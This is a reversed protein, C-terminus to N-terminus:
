NHKARYWYSYASEFGLKKYMNLAVTNEQIVQLYASHSGKSCVYSLLSTCIETGYGKGRLADDVVVNFLGTYGREVACLGCAIIKGDKVLRGFVTDVKINDLIQKTIAIEKDDSYKSLSFYADSWEDDRSFSFTFNDSVADNFQELSLDATMMYTPSIVTYGRKELLWEVEVDSHDTIKFVAPQENKFYCRECEEIKDQIKLRSPYLMNVSNARNYGSGRTFRLVWGDFFQTQLAPLANLSLEEYLLVTDNM